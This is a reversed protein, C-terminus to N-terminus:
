GNMQGCLTELDCTIVSVHTYGVRQLQEAALSARIGTACHIYIPTESDSFRQVSQMELVGRPINVAGIVPQEIVEQPERVDLLVAHDLKAMEDKAAKISILRLDKRVETMLDPISILM